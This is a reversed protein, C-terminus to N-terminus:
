MKCLAQLRAAFRSSANVAASGAQIWRNPLRRMVSRANKAQCAWHKRLLLECGFDVELVDGLVWVDWACDGFGGEALRWDEVPVPRRM